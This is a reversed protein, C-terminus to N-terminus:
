PGIKMIPLYSHPLLSSAQTQLKKAVEGVRRLNAKGDRESFGLAKNLGHRVNDGYLICTNIQYPILRQELEGAITSKGSASLGTIWILASKHGNKLGLGHKASKHNRWTLNNM